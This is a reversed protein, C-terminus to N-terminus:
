WGTQQFTQLGQYVVDLASWGGQHFAAGIIAAVCVLRVIRVQSLM